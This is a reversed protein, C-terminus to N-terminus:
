TNKVSLSFFYYIFSVLFKNFYKKKMCVFLARCM